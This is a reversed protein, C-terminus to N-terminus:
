MIAITCPIIVAQETPAYGLKFRDIIGQSLGRDKFYTTKMLYKHWEQYLNTFNPKTKAEPEERQIKNKQLEKKDPKTARTATSIYGTPFFAEAKAKQDAFSSISYDIGILDFIDYKAGCAFCKVINTKAYYSMSPNTDQHEPNLCKFPKNLSIEPHQRMLYEALKERLYKTKDDAAM